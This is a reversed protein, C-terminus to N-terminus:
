RTALEGDGDVRRGNGESGGREGALMAVAAKVGAMDM